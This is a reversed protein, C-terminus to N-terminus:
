SHARVSKISQSILRELTPLHIDSLRKIYLCGKGCSHKGLKDLLQQRNEFQPWLYVTLNTKRPAFAALMWEAKKGSAGTWWHRGFGIISHLPPDPRIATCPLTPASRM